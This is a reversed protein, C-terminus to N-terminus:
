FTFLSDKFHYIWAGIYIMIPFVMGRMSDNWRNRKCIHMPILTACIGLIALTRQRRSSGSSSVFDMYGAQTLMDFIFEVLLYGLVPTIAGIALGTM